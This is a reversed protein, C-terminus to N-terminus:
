PLVEPFGGLDDHWDYATDHDSEYLGRECAWQGVDDGEYIKHGADDYEAFWGEYFYLKKM